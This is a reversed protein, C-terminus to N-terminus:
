EGLCLDARQSPPMVLAGSDAALEVARGTGADGVALSGGLPHDPVEGGLAHFEGVLHEEAIHPGPRLEAGPVAAEDGASGQDGAAADLLKRPCRPRARCFPSLSVSSLSIIM